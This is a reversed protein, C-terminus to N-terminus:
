LAEDAPADSGSAEASPVDYQDLFPQINEDIFANVHDFHARLTGISSPLVSLNGYIGRVEVYVKAKERRYSEISVHLDGPIEPTHPLVFRMGGIMIPRRIHPGLRGHQGCVQELMFVRSDDFHELAFVNRLTVTQAVISTLEFTEMARGAVAEMKQVFEELSLDTWEEVVAIRDPLFVAVSQRDDGRKTHFRPPRPGDLEATEYDAEEVEALEDYLRELAPRSLQLAPYILETSFHIPKGTSEM